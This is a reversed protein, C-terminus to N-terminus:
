VTKSSDTICLQDLIVARPKGSSSSRTSVMSARVTVSKGFRPNKVHTSRWEGRSPEVGMAELAHAIVGRGEEATIAWVELTGVGELKWFTMVPGTVFEFGEWWDATSLAAADPDAAVSPMHYSFIKEIRSRPM